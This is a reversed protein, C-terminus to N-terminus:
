VGFQRLHHDLHHYQGQGWETPTLKGFFANPHTTAGAEGGDHMRKLLVLLNAKEKDFDKPETIIFVPSTPSNKPLKKEGTLLGKSFGGILIGILSRKPKVDGLAMQIGVACHAMMQAVSMKGWLRQSDPTLKDFREVTAEYSEKQYLNNM